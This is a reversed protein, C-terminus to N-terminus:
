RQARDLIKQMGKLMDAAAAESTMTGALVAAILPQIAEVSMQPYAPTVPRPLAGIFVDYFQGFHPYMQLVEADTYVSRRAPLNGGMLAKIKQAEHSTM